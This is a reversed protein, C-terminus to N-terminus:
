RQVAAFLREIVVILLLSGILTGFIFILWRATKMESLFHVLNIAFRWDEAIAPERVFFSKFAYHYFLFLLLASYLAVALARLPTRLRTPAVAILVLLAAGYEFSLRTAARPGDGWICVPIFLLVNLAFIGFILMVRRFHTRM